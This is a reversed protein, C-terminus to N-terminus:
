LEVQSSRSNRDCHLKAPAARVKDQDCWDRSKDQMVVSNIGPMMSTWYNVM